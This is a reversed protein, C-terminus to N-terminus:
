INSCHKRNDYDMDGEEYDLIEQREEHCAVCYMDEDAFIVANHNDCGSCKSM